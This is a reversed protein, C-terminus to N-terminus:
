KIWAAGTCDNFDHSVLYDYGFEPASLMLYDQGQFLLWKGNNSWSASPLTLEDSLTYRQTEQSAISYLYVYQQRGSNDNVNTIATSLAIWNHDPSFSHVTLGGFAEEAKFILATKGTRWDFSFFYNEYDLRDAVTLFILNPATPDAAAGILKIDAGELEPLFTVLDAAEVIQKPENDEINTAMLVTDVNDALFAYNKNDLWFPAFGIGVQEGDQLREDGLFIQVENGFSNLFDPGSWLTRSGDPSWVPTGDIPLLSCSEENCQDLDLLHLSFVFDGLGTSNEQFSNLVLYRGDPDSLNDSFYFANGYNVVTEEGNLWLTTRLHDLDLFQETFILGENGPLGDMVVFDRDALEVSWRNDAPDYRYVDAIGTKGDNCILAVDEEPWALPPQGQIQQLRQRVFARWDEVALNLNGSLGAHSLWSDISDTEALSRELEIVRSNGDQHVLFEILSYLMWWDPQEQFEATTLEDEWFTRITALNVPQRLATQYTEATLPWSQFGLQQLQADVLAKFFPSQDCCTWNSQRAVLRSVLFTAYGRYLARYSANNAPKGILTPTPLILQDGDQSFAEPSAIGMMAEGGTGLIVDLPQFNDGCELSLNSCAGALMAELDSALRHGLESDREPYTLTIFRGKSSFWGGWFDDPPPSLLWRTESLRYVATQTLQIKGEEGNLGYGYTEVYEIEASQLDPSLDVSVEDATEEPEWILGFPQRDLLLNMDLLALQDQTWKPDRGSLLPALLELDDEQAAMKVLAHSSLVDEEVAAATNEVYRLVQLFAFLGASVVVVLVGLIILWTPRKKKSGPEQDKPDRSVFEDWSRDDEARWDFNSSM